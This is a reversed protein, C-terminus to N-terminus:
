SINLPQPNSSNELLARSWPIIQQLINFQQQKHVTQQDSKTENNTTKQKYPM